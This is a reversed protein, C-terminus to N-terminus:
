EAQLRAATAAATARTVDAAFDLDLRAIEDTGDGCHYGGYRFNATDTVMIAPYGAEWFSAHDSRSLDGIASSGMLSPPVDLRIAPLGAPAGDVFATVWPDADVDAVLAIFDGTYDRDEVEEVADPFPLAFGPPLQQSDPNSDRYAIMELSIAVDIEQSDAAARDAWARSGVLGLEEQDWCAVILDHTWTGGALARAVGLAGAVGSANDDAGACGPVSDYHASVLVTRGSSGSITGVVNTGSGYEHDEVTFGLETLVARCHDQATQWGDSGSPREVALLQLDAAYTDADVCAAAETPTSPVCGADGDDSGAPCGLLPLSLLVLPLRHSLDFMRPLTRPGRRPLWPRWLWSRPRLGGTRASPVSRPHPLGDQDRQGHEGEARQDDAARLAAAVRPEATAGGAVEILTSKLDDVQADDHHVHAGTGRLLWTTWPPIGAEGTIRTGTAAPELKVRATPQLMSWLDRRNLGM